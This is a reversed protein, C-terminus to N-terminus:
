IYEGRTNEERRDAANCPRNYLQHNMDGGPRL